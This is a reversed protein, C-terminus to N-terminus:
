RSHDALADCLVAVQREILKTDFEAFTGEVNMARRDPAQQMTMSLGPPWRVTGAQYREPGGVESEDVCVM